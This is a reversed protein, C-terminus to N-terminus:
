GTPLFFLTVWSAWGAHPCSSPSPLAQPVSCQGLAPRSWMLPQCNRTGILRMVHHHALVETPSIPTPPAQWAQTSDPWVRLKGSTSSALWRAGPGPGTWLGVMQIQVSLFATGMLEPWQM